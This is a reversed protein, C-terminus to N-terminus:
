EKKSIVKEFYNAVDQKKIAAINSNFDRFAHQHDSAEKYAGGLGFYNEGENKLLEANRRYLNWREEYKLIQNLGTGIAVIVGLITTLALNSFQFNDTIEYSFKINAFVPILVGAVFVSIKILTYNRRCKVAKGDAYNLESVWQLQLTEKDIENLELKGIIPLYGDGPKYSNAM